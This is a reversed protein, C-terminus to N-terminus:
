DKVIKIKWSMVAAATLSIGALVLANVPDGALLNNYILPVVLMSIIQPIVIFMNFIGM